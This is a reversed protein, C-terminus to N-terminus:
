NRYSGFYYGFDRSTGGDVLIRVAVSGGEPITFPGASRDTCQGDDGTVTWDISGDAGFDVHIKNAWCREFQLRFSDGFDAPDAQQSLDVTECNWVNLGDGFSPDTPKLFAFTARNSTSAGCAMANPFLTRDAGGATPASTTPLPTTTKATTSAAITSSSSAAPATSASTGPPSATTPSPPPSSATTNSAPNATPGVTSTDPPPEEDDESLDATDGQATAGDTETGPLTVVSSTVPGNPTSGLAVDNGDGDDGRQTLAVVGAATALVVVLAAALALWGRRGAANKPQPEYPSAGVVLDEALRAADLCADRWDTMKQPRDHPNPSLSQRLVNDFPATRDLAESSFAHDLPGRVKDPRIGTMAFTVVASAAYVDTAPGIGPGGQELEWPAYGPTGRSWGTGCQDRYDRVTGFDGLVLKEDERIPANAQAVEASAEVDLLLNDPKVDLHVLGERHLQGIVDTLAEILALCEPVDASRGLDFLRDGLSGRKLYDMVFFTQENHVGIETVHLLGGLRESLALLTKFETQSGHDTLMKIAVKANDIRPDTALFVSGHLGKGLRCQVEFRGINDPVGGESTLWSLDEEPTVQPRGVTRSEDNM